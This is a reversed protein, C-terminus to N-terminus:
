FKIIALWNFSNVCNGEEEGKRHVMRDMGQSRTLTLPCTLKNRVKTITEIVENKCGNLGNVGM